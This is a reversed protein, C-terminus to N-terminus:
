VDKQAANASRRQMLLSDKVEMLNLRPKKFSKSQSDEDESEEDDSEYLEYLEGQQMDQELIALEQDLMARDADILEQEFTFVTRYRSQMRKDQALGTRRKDLAEKDPIRVRQKYTYMEISRKLEYMRQDLLEMDRYSIDLQMSLVDYNQEMHAYVYISRGGPNLRKQLSIINRALIAKHANLMAYEQQLEGIFKM